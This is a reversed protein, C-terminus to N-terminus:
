TCTHYANSITKKLEPYKGLRNNIFLILIKKNRIENPKSYYM